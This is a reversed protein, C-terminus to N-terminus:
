LNRETVKNEFEDIQKYVLSSSLLSFSQNNNSIFLYIFSAIIVMLSFLIVYLLNFVGYTLLSVQGLLFMEVFISSFFEVLLVINKILINYWKPKMEDTRSIVIKLVKNSITMKDKNFLPIIIVSVIFGLLFSIIHSIILSIMYSNYHSTFEKNKEIYKSYYKEVQSVGENLAYFYHNKFINYVNSSLTSRDEYVLYNMLINAAGSGDENYTLIQYRSIENNILSSGEKEFYLSIDNENCKMIKEYLYTEKNDKYDINDIVYDNLSSEKSKFTFFFYSINDNPYYYNGNEDKNGKNLFTENIEVKNNTKPYDLNRVYYSTKVITTLYSKFETEEDVLKQTESDYGQIRTESVIEKLEINIENMRKLNNSNFPLSLNIPNILAAFFFFSFIITIFYDFLFSYIIKSKKAIVNDKYPSIYLEKKM